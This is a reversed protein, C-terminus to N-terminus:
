IVMLLCAMPELLVSQGAKERVQFEMMASYVRSVRNRHWTVMLEKSPMVPQHTEGYLERAGGTAPVM